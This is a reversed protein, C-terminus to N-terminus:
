SEKGSIDLIKVPIDFTKWGHKVGSPIFYAEDSTLIKREEGIYMEIKGDLIIGCQDFTHRHGADEKEAEIEMCVMTLNNGIEAKSLIGPRFKELQLAGLNWFVM